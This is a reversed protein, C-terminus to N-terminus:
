LDKAREETVGSASITFSFCYVLGKKYFLKPAKEACTHRLARFLAWRFSYRKYIYSFRVRLTCKVLTIYRLKCTFLYSFCTKNFYFIKICM